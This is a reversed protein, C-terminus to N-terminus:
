SLGIRICDPVLNVVRYASCSGGQFDEHLLCPSKLQRDTHITLKICHIGLSSHHTYHTTHYPSSPQMTSFSIALYTVSRHSSPAPPSCSLSILQTNLQRPIALQLPNDGAIELTLPFSTDVLSTLISWNRYLRPSTKHSQVPAYMMMSSYMYQMMISMYNITYTRQIETVCTHCSSATSM